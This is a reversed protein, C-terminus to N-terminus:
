AVREARMSSGVLFNTTSNSSNQAGQLTVTGGTAGNIILADIVVYSTNVTGRITGSTGGQSATVSNVALWSSSFTNGVTEVVALVDTEASAVSDNSQETYAMYRVSATVSTPAAPGTLQLKVGGTGGYSFSLMFKVSWVENANIAFAMNGSSATINAYTTDTTFTQTATKYKQVRGNINLPSVVSLRRDTISASTLATGSKPVYIRAIELQTSSPTPPVPGTTATLAAPTGAVASVSGGSTIVIIDVRPNTADQATLTITAGAYAAGSVSNVVYDGAAAAAVPFDLGSSFTVAASQILWGYTGQLADAVRNLESSALIGATGTAFRGPM